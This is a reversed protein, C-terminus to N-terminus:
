HRYKFVAYIERSGARSAKTSTIKSFGFKPKWDNLFQPTLDGQFQKVVVNGDPELFIMSLEMVRRCLLYSSAHDRSKDGSTKVMADSLIVDVASVGIEDLARRIDEEVRPDNIDRKIFIVNNLPEMPAVDVAIVPSGTVELVVQTWGGPSAGFELVVDGENLVEFKEQIEQLKYSARSRLSEKKAKFYYKDQRKPM